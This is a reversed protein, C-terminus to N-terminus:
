ISLIVFIYGQYKSVQPQLICQSDRCLPLVEGILTRYIVSFLKFTLSWYQLKPFMSYEKMVMVGLDVRAQHLLVQKSGMLYFQEIM